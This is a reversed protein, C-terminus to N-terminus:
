KIKKSPNDTILTPKTLLVSSFDHKQTLQSPEIFEHLVFVAEGKKLIVM